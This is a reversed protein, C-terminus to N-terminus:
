YSSHFLSTATLQKKLEGPSLEGRVLTLERTEGGKMHFFNDSFVADDSSLDLYVFLAPRDAKVSITLKGDREKVECSLAPDELEMHKYPAFAHSARCVTGDEGEFRAFLFRNCCDGNKLEETFDMTLFSRSSFSPIVAKEEGELITKGSFDCLEWKLVGSKEKKDENSLWLSVSEEKGECSLLLNAFDRKAMYHLAKWRGYYDISAWSAVPWNDNLQWYVAGMCRGRNRRWHRIGTTLADGQSLQSLYVTNRLDSPAKFYQSMYYFIKSNGGPCRQHDDMIRSIPNRDEEETFSEITKMDPYSEFGFESMFRFYHNEYESFPMLGHWVAWFHCDGREPANPEDFSGASSPSSPWYFLEPCVEKAIAPFVFEYQKLYEMREENTSKFWNLIGDEMENNGCILGVSAHHRIRKLNDRVELSINELFDENKVDYIACAFMMDQWNVLGYIDCLDYFDDSPYVGGGWVRISNFNAEVADQILRETKERTVRTLYVDEPIYDAGRSFFPIGNVTFAFAEGWEDKDRCVTMTRLGIKLEGKQGDPLVGELKYLPQDGLGNPWWLRPNEVTIVCKEGCVAKAERTKGEPGTLTFAMEPKDGWCDAEPILELNVRGDEHHQIVRIGELRYSRYAAIRIHRWIGLDPIKPGWDWGYSCHSKRIMNFGQVSVVGDHDAAYLLRREREKRIYELSNQFLIEIRNEGERLLSKVDIRYPRHMNNTRAAERGNVTIVTLTDLGEAELFVREASLISKGVTFSRSFLFDRDAIDLCQRNNDRFFVDGKEYVGQEELTQFVSGPVPQDFEYKGEESRVHWQGNLCIEEKM